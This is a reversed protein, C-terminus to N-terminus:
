SAAHAGFLDLELVEDGWLRLRSHERRWEGIAPRIRVFLRCALQETVFVEVIVSRLERAEPQAKTPPNRITHRGLVAVRDGGIPELPALRSVPCKM